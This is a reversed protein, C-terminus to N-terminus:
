STKILDAEQGAEALNDPIVLRISLPQGNRSRDAGALKWGEQDLLRRGPADAKALRRRQSTGTSTTMFIHNDLSADPLVSRISCRRAIAPRDV